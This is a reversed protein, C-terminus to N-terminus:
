LDKSQDLQLRNCYRNHRDATRQFEPARYTELLGCRGSTPEDAPTGLRTVAQDM